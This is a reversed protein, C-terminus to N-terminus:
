RASLPWTSTNPTAVHDSLTPAAPSHLLASWGLLLDDYDLVHAARKRARYGEFTARLEAHEDVCWPFSERLVQSLPTSTNVVRGLIAAM